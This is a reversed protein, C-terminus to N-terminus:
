SYLERAMKELMRKGRVEERFLNLKLIKNEPFKTEIESLRELQFKRRGSCFRCGSNEPIIQNVIISGIHIRADKLFRVSRESEYISMAEPIMVINYSTKEPDSLIEKAKRIREKMEDDYPVCTAIFIRINDSFQDALKLAQSSKGSRCGGIVLINKKEPLTM